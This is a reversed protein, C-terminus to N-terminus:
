RETAGITAVENMASVARCQQNLVFTPDISESPAIKVMWCKQLHEVDQPPQLHDIQQEFWDECHVRVNDM